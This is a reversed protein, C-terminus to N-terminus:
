TGLRRAQLVHRVGRAIIREEDAAIVRVTVKAGDRSLVAANEVNSAQDLAIGLFALERCVRERIEPQHEGIGGTFVLTDIGGLVAALAGIAKRVYYCFMEIADTARLDDGARELLDRLDSTTESVALLGSRRTMQEFIEEASMKHNRALWLFVGPDLDGSRNSMPIGGTPTFGMTTDLCRGGRVAALSAGDGLHALILRGTAAAEGATRRLEDMVHTYSLGHFGYRRLGRAADLRPVPLRQAVEPLNRHFTTDFCTVQPLDPWRATIAEICGLEIAQHAPDYPEMARLRDIVERDILVPGNLHPGGHVVRHGISILEADTTMAEACREIVERLAQLHDIRGLPVRRADAQDGQFILTADAGGLGEIKGRWRSASVDALSYLAFKLSWSGANLALLMGREASSTTVLTPAHIPVM